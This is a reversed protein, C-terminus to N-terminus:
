RLEINGTAIRYRIVQPMFASFELIINPINRVADEDNVTMPKVKKLMQLATYHFCYWMYHKESQLVRYRRYAAHNPVQQATTQLLERWATRLEGATGNYLLRIHKMIELPRGMPSKDWILCKSLNHYDRVGPQFSHPANTSLEWFDIAATPRLMKSPIGALRWETSAPKSVAIRIYDLLDSWVKNPVPINYRESVYSLLQTAIVVQAQSGFCHVIAELLEENPAQPSDPRFNAGGSVQIERTDWNVDIKIDWCVQLIDYCDIIRGNRGNAKLLACALGRESPLFGRRFASRELRRLPTRHRLNRTLPIAFYLQRPNQGFRHMQRHRMNAILHKLSRITARTLRFSSRYLDIPRLRYRALDNNAYLSETLFRAKVFEAYLTASLWDVHGDRRAALWITKVGYHDAAAAACRLLISYDSLLPRIDAYRRLQQLMRLRNHISTYLVKIGWKNVLEGLPTHIAAGYSIRLGPASDVHEQIYSPDFVRLIDSFTTKPIGVILKRFAPDAPDADRTLDLLSLYLKLADDQRL